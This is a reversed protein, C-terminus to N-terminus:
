KVAATIGRLHRLLEPFYLEPRWLEAYCRSANRRFSQMETTVLRIAAPIEDVSNPCIGCKYKDIYESISVLNRVIVPVSNRLSRGIKGAALGLLEARYGLLEPDYWALCIDASSVFADLMDPPVPLASLHVNPRRRVVSIFRMYYEQGDLRSHCHFVLHWNRPWHKVSEALEICQQQPGIAGAHLVILDNDPINFMKRLQNSQIGAVPGGKAVPLLAIKTSPIGTEQCIFQAHHRDMTVLLAARRIAWHELKEVWTMKPERKSPLELGYCIFPIRFLLSFIAGLISGFGDLGIVVNTHQNIIVSFGRWFLRFVTPPLFRRGAIEVTHVNVSQILASEIRRGPVGPLVLELEMGSRELVGLLEM